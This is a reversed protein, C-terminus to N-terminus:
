RGDEYAPLSIPKSVMINFRFGRHVILTPPLQQYRRLESKSVNDLAQGAASGVASGPNEGANIVTVNGSSPLLSSLAAILFSSGFRQWFHTNVDAGMGAQGYADAASMGGLHVTTGDPFIIKTF